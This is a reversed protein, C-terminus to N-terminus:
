PRGAGPVAVPPALIEGTRPGSALRGLNDTIGDASRWEATLIFRTRRGPGGLMLAFPAQNQGLQVRRLIEGGAAVRVVPNGGACVWIAGEADLCIGDPALGEAFVRRGPPGGGPDIGFATLRGAISEAILLTRNGPTIVM